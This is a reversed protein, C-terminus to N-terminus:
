VYFIQDDFGRIIVPIKKSNKNWFMVDCRYMKSPDQLTDANHENEDTDGNYYWVIDSNLEDAIIVSDYFIKPNKLKNYIDHHSLGCTKYNKHVRKGCFCLSM